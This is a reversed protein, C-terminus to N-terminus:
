DSTRLMTNFKYRDGHYSSRVVEFPQTDAYTVRTISLIPTCPHAGLLRIEDEGAIQAEITQYAHTMHLQYDERLVRYLSERSFDHRDLIGPCLAYIICSRELAIPQGDAMRIRHLDVVEAGPLISLLRAQDDDAGTITAQLVRSTAQKGRDIMDQTFGTLSHLTQEFKGPAVYTGKGVRSYVLGEQALENLAKSVTLRNVGFQEALQRESPIKDHVQYLGNQVNQRIYDKIQIYLPVSADHNVM